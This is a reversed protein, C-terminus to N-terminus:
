GIRLMWDQRGANGPMQWTKCWQGSDISRTKANGNFIPEMKVNSALQQNMNFPISVGITFALSIQFYFFIIHKLKFCIGQQVYISEYKRRAIQNEKSISLATVKVTLLFKFDEPDHLHALAKSIKIYLNQILYHTTVLFMSWKM